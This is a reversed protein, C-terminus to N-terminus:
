GMQFAASKKKVLKKILSLRCMALIQQVNEFEEKGCEKIYGKLGIMQIIKEYTVLKLISEDNLLKYHNVLALLVSMTNKFVNRKNFQHILM